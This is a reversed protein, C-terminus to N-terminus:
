LMYMIASRCACLILQLCVIMCTRATVTVAPQTPPQTPPQAARVIIILTMSGGSSDEDTSTKTKKANTVEKYM